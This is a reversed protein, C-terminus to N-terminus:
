LPLLQFTNDSLNKKLLIHLTLEWYPKMIFTSYVTKKDAANKEVCGWRQKIKEHISGWINSLHQKICIVMM